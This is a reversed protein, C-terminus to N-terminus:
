GKSMVTINNSHFFNLRGTFTSATNSGPIEGRTAQKRKVGESYFGRWTDLM